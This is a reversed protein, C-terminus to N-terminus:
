RRREEMQALEEFVKLRGLVYRLERESHRKTAAGDSEIVFGRDDDQFDIFSLSGNNRDLTITMLTNSARRLSAVRGMAEPAENGFASVLRTLMDKVELFLENCIKSRDEQFM